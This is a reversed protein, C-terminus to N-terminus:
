AHVGHTRGMMATKKFELARAKLVEMLTSIGEDLIDAAEVLHLGLATDMVDSSTLGLHVWRGEPGLGETISRTFATMDHRTRQFIEELRELDYSASRLRAMDEPPIVGEEAWAECAALEVRLWTDYKNEDSWVRKMRPLAYRDIM